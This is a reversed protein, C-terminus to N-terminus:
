GIPWAMAARDFMLLAAVVAVKVLVTLMAVIGGVTSVVWAPLELLVRAERKVLTSLCLKARQLRLQQLLAVESVLGPHAMLFPVMM